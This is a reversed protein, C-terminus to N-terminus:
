DEDIVKYSSQRRPHDSPRKIAEGGTSWEGAISGPSPTGQGADRALLKRREHIWTALDVSALLEYLREIDGKVRKDENLTGKVKAVTDHAKRDGAQAMTMEELGLIGSGIQGPWRTLAKHISEALIKIAHIKRDDAGVNFESLADVVGGVVHGFEADLAQLGARTKKGDSILEAFSERLERDRAREDGTDERSEKIAELTREKIESMKRAEADARDVPLGRFQQLAKWSIWRRGESDTRNEPGKDREIRKRLSGESMGLETAADKISFERHDLSGM